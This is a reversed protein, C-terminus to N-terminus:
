ELRPTTRYRKVEKLEYVAVYEGEKPPQNDGEGSDLDDVNYGAIFDKEDIDILYVTKRFTPKTMM